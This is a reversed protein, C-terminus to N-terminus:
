SGLREWADFLLDRVVAEDVESLTARVASLKKGWYMEECGENTRAAKRIDAEDLM